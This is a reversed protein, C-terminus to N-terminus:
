ISLSHPQNNERKKLMESCGEFHENLLREEELFVSKVQSCCEFSSGSGSFHVYSNSVVKKQKPITATV